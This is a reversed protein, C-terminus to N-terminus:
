EEDSDIIPNHLFCQKETDFLGRDTLRIEGIVPLALFSLNVFPDIDEPLGMQRLQKSMCTQQALLTRADEESM